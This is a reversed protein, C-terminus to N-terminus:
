STSQVDFYICCACGYTDDIKLEIEPSIVRFHDSGATGAVHVYVDVYVAHQSRGCSVVPNEEREYLCELSVLLNTFLSLSRRTRRYNNADFM